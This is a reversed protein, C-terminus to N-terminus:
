IIVSQLCLMSNQWYKEAIHKIAKYMKGANMLSTKNGLITYELFVAYITLMYGATYSYKSM